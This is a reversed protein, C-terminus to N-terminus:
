HLTREVVGSAEEPKVKVVEPNLTKVPIEPVDEDMLVRPSPSAPVEEEEKITPLRRPPRRNLPRLAAPKVPKPALPLSWSPASRSSHFSPNRRPKLVVTEKKKLKAPKAERLVKEPPSAQLVRLPKQKAHTKGKKVLKAREIAKELADKTRLLSLGPVKLTKAEKKLEERSLLGERPIFVGRDRLYKAADEKKRQKEWPIPFGKENGLKVLDEIRM